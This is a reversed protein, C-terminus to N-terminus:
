LTQITQWTKTRSSAFAAAVIENVALGDRFTPWVPEGPSTAPADGAPISFLLGGSTQPDLLLERGDCEVTKLGAAAVAIGVLSAEAQGTLLAM